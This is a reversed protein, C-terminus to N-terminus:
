YSKEVTKDVTKIEPKEAPTVVNDTSQKLLEDPLVYRLFKKYDEKYTADTKILSKYVQKLDEVLSGSSSSSSGQIPAPRQKIPESSNYSFKGLLQETFKKLFKPDINQKDIKSLFLDAVQNLLTDATAEM